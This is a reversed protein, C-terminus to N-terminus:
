APTHQQAANGSWTPDSQRRSTIAPFVRAAIMWQLLGVAVTGLPLNLFEAAPQALIPAVWAFALISKEYHLFGRELGYAALLAIAPGVIVMDYHLFYPTTLLSGVLVSAVCLRHDAKRYFLAVVVAISAIAAIGQPVYALEAPFGIRRFAAFVSMIRDWESVAGEYARGEEIVIRRTPGLGAMFAIWTKLGFGAVTAAVLVVVTVASAAITRWYGGAVLAIPILLGLHPKYSLLGILVGAVIPRTTLLLFGYTMLAATIFGNQCYLVNIFAAPFAAAALLSLRGPLIRQTVALFAVLGTAQWVIAAIGYPLHALFAAVALFSPPYCWALFKIQAGFMAFQVASHLSHDYVAEPAGQLVLMGATYVPVLDKALPQGHRDLPWIGGTSNWLLGAVYGTVIILCYVRMRELTIYDGLRLRDALNSQTSVVHAIM